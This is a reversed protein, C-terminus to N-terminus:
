YNRILSYENGTESINFIKYGSEKLKYIVSMTEKIKKKDNKFHFEILLQNPFIHENILNEIVDFEAGEIDMKLLDIKTHNLKKMLTSLKNVSCEVYNFNKNLDKIISFSVFDPNDPSKFKAKGDYDALGM